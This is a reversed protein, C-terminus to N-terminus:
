PRVPWQGLASRSARRATRHSAVSSRRMPWSRAPSLGALPDRKMAERIRQTMFWASKPTLEYKREIERAAIGNKNACMEFFVFLWKRISIKSGHFVTGTTASFQKRCAGCKWVRRESNAGTRTKRSVGNAPNLFYVGTSECHPCVPSTPGGFNRWTATPTLRRKSGTLSASLRFASWAWM